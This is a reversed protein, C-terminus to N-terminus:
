NGSVQGGHTVAEQSYLLCFHHKVYAEVDPAYAPDVMYVTVDITYHGEKREILRIQARRTISSWPACLVISVLARQVESFPEQAPVDLTFSTCATERPIKEIASEKVLASYPIEISGGDPTEIALSRYGLHTLRGRINRFSVIDDTRYRGEAKFVVGAIWDRIVFSGAWTLLGAMLVLLIISGAIGTQLIHRAGWVLFVIWVVFEVMPFFRNTIPAAQKRAMYGNIGKQAIRLGLFVLIGILLFELITLGSIDHFLDKM